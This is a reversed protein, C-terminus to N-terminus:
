HGVRRKDETANEGAHTNIADDRMIGYTLVPQVPM